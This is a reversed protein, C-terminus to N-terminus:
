HFYRSHKINGSVAHKSPVVSNRLHLERVKITPTIFLEAINTITITMFYDHDHRGLRFDPSFTFYTGYCEGHPRCECLEDTTCATPDKFYSLGANSCLHNSNIWPVQLSLKFISLPSSCFKNYVPKRVTISKLDESIGGRGFLPVKLDVHQVNAHWSFMNYCYHCVPVQEM